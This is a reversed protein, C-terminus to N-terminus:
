EFLEDTDIDSSEYQLKLEPQSAMNQAPQVSSKSGAPSKVPKLTEWVDMDTSSYSRQFNEQEEFDENSKGRRRTPPRRKPGRCVRAKNLFQPRGVSVPEDDESSSSM